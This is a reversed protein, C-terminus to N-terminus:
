LEARVAVGAAAPSPSRAPRASEVAPREPAPVEVGRARVRAAVWWLVLGRGVCVVVLAFFLQYVIRLVDFLGYTFAVALGFCVQNRRRVPTTAPDTIMYFTFLTFAVGTMPSLAHMLNVHLVMARALAQLVFGAVWAIVLPLKGTLKGNLLSGTVLIVVPLSWDWVGHLYETFQYPPAVGVWPFAILTVAIGLNSPNLFHMTRGPAVPARFVSKSLVGISVAFVVPSISAHSYLLMACALATIHAPLLFDVLRRLGGGTFAPRRGAQAAAVLEMGLELLYATAMAVLPQLYAMEFGLFAHGVVTLVTISFAFRRLATLRKDRPAHQEARV